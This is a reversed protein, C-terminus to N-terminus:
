KTESNDADSTNKKEKKKRIITLVVLYGTYVLLGILIGVIFGVAWM